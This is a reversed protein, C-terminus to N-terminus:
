EGVVRINGNQNHLSVRPTGAPSAAGHDKMWVPFDSDIKGYSTHAQVDPKLGAPLRVDLAAYSTRAELSALAASTARVSIGGFQNDCIFNTGPGTIDMPGYSTEAKVSGTIAEAAV